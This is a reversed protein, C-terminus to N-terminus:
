KSWFVAYDSVFYEMFTKELAHTNEVLLLTCKNMSLQSGWQADIDSGRLWTLITGAISFPIMVANFLFISVFMQYSTASNRSIFMRSPVAPKTFVPLSAWMNSQKIVSLLTRFYRSAPVISGDCPALAFRLRYCLLLMYSVYTEAHSSCFYIGCVKLDPNFNFFRLLFAPPLNYSPM